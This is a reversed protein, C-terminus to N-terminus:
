QDHLVQLAESQLLTWAPGGERAVVRLRNVIGRVGDVEGARRLARRVDNVNGVTGTLDVIGRAVTIAIATADLRDDDELATAVADKLAADNSEDVRNKPV